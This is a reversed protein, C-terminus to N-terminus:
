HEARIAHEEHPKIKAETDPTAGKTVIGRRKRTMLQM